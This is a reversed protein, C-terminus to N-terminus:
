SGCSGFGQPFLWILLPSLGEDVQMPPVLLYLFLVTHYVKTDSAAALSSRLNAALFLLEELKTDATGICLVEMESAEFCLDPASSAPSSPHIPYQSNPSPFCNCSVRSVSHSHASRNFTPGWEIYRPHAAVPGSM